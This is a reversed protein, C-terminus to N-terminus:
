EGTDLRRLIATLKEIYYLDARCWPQDLKRALYEADTELGDALAAFLGRALHPPSIFNEGGIMREGWAQYWVPLQRDLGGVHYAFREGAHHAVFAAVEPTLDVYRPIKANHSSNGQGNDTFRILRSDAREHHIREVLMV